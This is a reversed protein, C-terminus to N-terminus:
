KKEGELNPLTQAFRYAKRCAKKIGMLTGCHRFHISSHGLFLVQTPFDYNEKFLIYAQPKYKKWVMKESTSKEVDLTQLGKQFTHGSCCFETKYGKRNFERIAKKLFIDIEAPLNENYTNKLYPLKSIKCDKTKM